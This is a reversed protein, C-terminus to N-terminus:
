EFVDILLLSEITSSDIVTVALFEKSYEFGKSMPEKTSHM